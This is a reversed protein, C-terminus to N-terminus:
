KHERGKKEFWIVGAVCLGVCEGGQFAPFNFFSLFWYGTVLISCVKLFIFIQGTHLPSPVM